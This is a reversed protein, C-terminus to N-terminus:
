RVIVVQYGAPELWSKALRELTARDVRDIADLTEPDDAPPLGEFARLGLARTRNVATMQRMLARGRQMARVRDIEDAGAMEGRLRAMQERIASVVTDVNDPRTGVSVTLWGRDAAIAASAGLRYALGQQERITRDMRDSLLAALLRAGARDSPALEAIRGMMVQAQKAGIEVVKPEGSPQTLPWAPIAPRVKPTGETDFREAIAGFVDEPEAPSVATVILGAPALYDSAFARLEEATIGTLSAESGGVPHTTPDAEGLMAVRYATTSRESPSAAVKNANKVREALLAGLEASDLRPTRVMEALLDLAPLWNESPVELRVFSHTPSTYYDDYPISDQDATKLDAGLRELRAGLQARSSLATGLPLMRHLVDAIGTRNAPERAARDRVLVHLGTVAVRTERRVIVRMGNPLTRDLEDSSKSSTAAKTAVSKISPLAVPGAGQALPGVLAVRATSAARGLIQQAAESVARLDPVDDSAILKALEGGCASISDSQLMGFYHIRQGTLLASARSSRAVRLLEVPDIGAEGSGASAVTQLAGLIELVGADPDTSASLEADIQLTSGFQRPAYSVSIEPIRDASLARRLPGAESSLLEALTAAAPGSAECPGPAPIAISLRTSAGALAIKTITGASAPVFPNTAKAVSTGRPRKAYAGRVMTLMKESDFDGIVVLVMNNPVYQNRYYTRIRDLTIGGLSAETGIVPRGWATGPSLAERMVREGEEDPRARDKALEELVIKREKEFKDTPLTSDLLMAAQIELGQKAASAPVLMTFATYDDSTHANNYGGVRDVADYLQEQSMTTTGNFLLHELFHSAGSFDETELASGAGVVATYCVMPVEHREVLAVRLGNDLLTEVYGPLRIPAPSPAAGTDPARAILAVVLSTLLLAFRANKVM